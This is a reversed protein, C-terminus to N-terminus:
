PESGPELYINLEVSRKPPLSSPLDEPSIDKYGQLRRKMKGQLTTKGDEVAGTEPKNSPHFDSDEPVEDDTERTHLIYTRLKKKALRAIQKASVLYDPRKM